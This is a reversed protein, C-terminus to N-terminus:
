GLYSEDGYDDCIQNMGFAQHMVKAGRNPANQRVSETLLTSTSICCTYHKGAADTTRVAAKSGALM